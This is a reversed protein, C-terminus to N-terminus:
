VSQISPRTRPTFDCSAMKFSGFFTCHVSSACTRLPWQVGDQFVWLVAVGVPRVHTSCSSHTGMCETSINKSSVKKYDEFHRTFSNEHEWWSMTDWPTRKAAMKSKQHFYSKLSVDFLSLCIVGMKWHLKPVLFRNLPNNEHNLCTPYM